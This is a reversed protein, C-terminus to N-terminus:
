IVLWIKICILARRRMLGGPLIWTHCGIYMCELM